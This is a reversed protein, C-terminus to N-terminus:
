LKGLDKLVSIVNYIRLSPLNIEINRDISAYKNNIKEYMFGDRGYWRKINAVEEHKNIILTKMLYLLLDKITLLEHNNIKQTLGFITYEKREGISKNIYSFDSVRTKLRNYVSMLVSLSANITEPSPTGLNNRISSEIQNFSLETTISSLPLNLNLITSQKLAMDIWEDQTIPTTLISLLYKWIMEICTAFYQNAIALEWKIVIPKEKDNLQMKDLILPHKDGYLAEKINGSGDKNILGYKVLQYIYQENYFLYSHYGNVEKAFLAQYIINKVEDMGDLNISLYKSLEILDDRSVSEPLIDKAIYNKYYATNSIVSDFAKTLKIGLSDDSTIISNNNKTFGMKYCGYNYYNMGGYKSKYYYTYAFPGNENKNFISEINNHGVIGDMEKGALYNCLIFYFDNRKLFQEHFKEPHKEKSSYYHYYNWVLFAWYFPHPTVVNIIPCIDAQISASISQLGLTDRKTFSQYTSNFLPAKM